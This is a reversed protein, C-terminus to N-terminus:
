VHFPSPSSQFMSTGPHKRWFGQNLQERVAQYWSKWLERVSALPCGLHVVAKISHAQHVAELRVAREGRMQILWGVERQGGEWPNWFKEWSKGVKNFVTQFGGPILVQPCHGWSPIVSAPLELGGAWQSTLRISSLPCTFDMERLAGCICKPWVLNGGLPFRCCERTEISSVILRSGKTALLVTSFWHFHCYKRAM